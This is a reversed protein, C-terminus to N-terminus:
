PIVFEFLKSVLVYLNLKMMSNPVPMIKGVDPFGDQNRSLIQFMTTDGMKLKGKEDSFGDLNMFDIIYRVFQIPDTKCLSECAQVISMQGMGVRRMVVLMLLFGINLDQNPKLLVQSEVNKIAYAMDRISIDNMRSNLLGSVHEMKLGTIECIAGYFYSNASKRLSYEFYGQPIFKNIYGGFAEEGGYFHTFLRKLNNYETVFVISDFGFRSGVLSDSPADGNRYIFDMHASFVNLIRFLHQPELRDLDEVILVVNKHYNNRWDRISDRILKTTIDEFYFPSSEELQELLTRAASDGGRFIRWKKPISVFSKLVRIIASPIQAKPSPDIEGIGEFFAEVIRGADKIGKFADKITKESVMDSIMLQLLIDYKILGYIDENNAVQYNIPYIKIIRYEKQVERDKEFKDLFFSKGDGFKASLITRSHNRLHQLFQSVEKDIPIYFDPTAM